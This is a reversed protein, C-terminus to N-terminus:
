HRQPVAYLRPSGQPVQVQVGVGSRLSGALQRVASLARQVGIVLALVTLLSLTLVIWSQVLLVLM